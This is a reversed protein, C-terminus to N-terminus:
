AISETTLIRHPNFTIASYRFLMVTPRSPRRRCTPARIACRCAVRRAPKPYRPVTSAAETLALGRPTFLRRTVTTVILHRHARACSSTPSSSERRLKDSSRAEFTFTSSAMRAADIQARRRHFRCRRASPRGPTPICPLSALGAIPQGEELAKEQRDLDRDDGQAAGADRCGRGRDQAWRRRLPEIDITM